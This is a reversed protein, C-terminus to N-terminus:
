GGPKKSISNQPDLPILTTRWGQHNPINRNPTDGFGLDKLFVPHGKEKRERMTAAM